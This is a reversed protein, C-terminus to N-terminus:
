VTDINSNHDFKKQFNTFEPLVVCVRYINDIAVPLRDIPCDFNIEFQENQENNNNNNYLLM